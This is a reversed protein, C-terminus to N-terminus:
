PPSYDHNFCATIQCFPVGVKRKHRNKLEQSPVNIKHVRPRFNIVGMIAWGSVVAPQGYVLYLAGLDTM